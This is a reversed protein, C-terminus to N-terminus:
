AGIDVIYLIPIHVDKYLTQIWSCAGVADLAVKLINTFRCTHSIFDQEVKIM